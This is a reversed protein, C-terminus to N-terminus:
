FAWPAAPACWAAPWPPSTAAACCCPLSLMGMTVVSAGVIGTTAAFVTSVLIM